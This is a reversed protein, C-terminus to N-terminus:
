LFIRRLRHSSGLELSLAAFGVLHALSLPLHPSALLKFILMIFKVISVLWASLSGASSVPVERLLTCRLRCCSPCQVSLIAFGILFVPSLPLHPSALSILWARPFTRGHQFHDLLHCPQREFFHVASGVVHVVSFPFYPSASSFVPSLPLHPSASSILWARPFTRCLRRSSSPEFSPAAFGIVQLHARYIQRDVHAM